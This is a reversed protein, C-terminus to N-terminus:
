QGNSSDCKKFMQVRLVYTYFKISQTFMCFLDSFALWINRKSFQTFCLRERHTDNFCSERSVNNLPITFFASGCLHWIRTKELINQCSFWGKKLLLLVSTSMQYEDVVKQWLKEQKCTHAIANWHFSSIKLPFILISETSWFKLFLYFTIYVRLM